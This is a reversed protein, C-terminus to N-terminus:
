VKIREGALHDRLMDLAQFLRISVLSLEKHKPERAMRNVEKIARLIDKEAASKTM